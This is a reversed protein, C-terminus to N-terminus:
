RIVRGMGGLVSQNNMDAAMVARTNDHVACILREAQAGTMGDFGHLKNEPTVTERGSEGFHYVRGSKGIGMVREGITGGNAFHIGAGLGAGVAGVAGGLSAHGGQRMIQTALALGTSHVDNKGAREVRHDWIQAADAVSRAGLMQQIAGMDGSRVVFQIIAPLQTRMGGSFAANSITSPPTWGILGRGGTGVAFPNWLSEGWISATAGAAAVKNGGFLNTLLYNYLQVGNQYNTGNAGGLPANPNGGMAAAFAAQMAAYAAQLKGSAAGAVNHIMKTRLDSFPGGTVYKGAQSFLSMANDYAKQQAPNLMGPLGAFSGGPGWPGRHITYGPGVGQPGTGTATSRAAFGRGPGTVIGMHTNSVYLDGPQMQAYPVIRGYSQYTGTTPGHGMGIHWGGPVPIHLQDLIMNVFSSCDFHGPPSGGWTYPHGNYRLADGVIQGGSAARIVGKRGSPGATPVASNMAHLNDMGIAKAARPNIVFEGPSLMAPVTDRGPSFGPVAGGGAFHFLGQIARSAGKATATVAVGLTKAIANYTSALGSLGGATSSLARSVTTKLYGTFRGWPGLNGVTGHMHAMARDAAETKKRTNDLEQHRLHAWLIDAQDKNIGFQHALHEFRKRNDDARGSLFDFKQRGIAAWLNETQGRTLKLQNTWHAFAGQSVGVHHTLWNDINQHAIMDWLKQAAGTSIGIQHAWAIFKDHSAKARAGVFDLNQHSLKAWLAHAQDHSLHVKNAWLAFQGSSVAAQHGANRTSKNLGELKDFLKAAENRGIGLKQAWVIFQAKAQATNGTIKVMMDAVPKLKALMEQYQKPQGSKQFAVVARAAAKFAGAGGYAEIISAAMATNLENQLSNALAKADNALNGAAVTMDGTRKALDKMPNVSKGVWARLVKIDTTAPGGAIQALASLQAVSAKSHGAMPLLIAVLDKGAAALNRQSAASNGSVTSLTLLSNYVDTAKTVQEGFAAATQISATGVVKTQTAQKALGKDFAGLTTTGNTLVNIINSYAGTLTGVDKMQQSDQINLATLATNLGGVGATMAQYGLATAQVQLQVEKWTTADKNAFDNMSVGAKEVLDMASATSGYTHALIGLHTNFTANKRQLDTVVAGWDRQVQTLRQLAVAQGAAGNAVNGADRVQYQTARHTINIQKAYGDAARTANAWAAAAASLQVSLVTSFSRVTSNALAQNAADGFKQAADKALIFHEVVFGIGAALLALGGVWPNVGLNEMVKFFGNKAARGAAKFANGVGSLAVSGTSKLATMAKETRSAGAPLDNLATKVKSVGGTWGSAISQGAQRIIGATRNIKGGSDTASNSVDKIVRGMNTFPKIFQMAAFKAVTVATGIYLFAGHFALGAAIIPQLVKTVNAAVQLFATGLALLPEAYGPVSKLFTNFISGIAHFSEGIKKFDETGVLAMKGTSHLFANTAEGAFKTIIQGMRQVVTSTQSSNKNLALLGDGLIQFVYPKALESLAGSGIKGMVAFHQGTAQTVINMNQMNVAVQKASKAAALGFIGLAVAAPVWVAVFEVAADLALHIGNTFALVHPLVGKFAGGFLPIRHRALDMITNVWGKWRFVNSNVANTNNNAAKSTNNLGQTLVAGAASARASNARLTSQAANLATIGALAKSANLDVGIKVNGAAAQAKKAAAKAEAALAKDDADLRIDIHLGQIAKEASAKVQARLRSGDANITVWADGLTRRGAM